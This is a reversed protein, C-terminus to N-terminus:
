LLYFMVNKKKIQESKVKKCHWKIYYRYAVQIIYHINGEKLCAFLGYIRVKPVNFGQLIRVNQYNAKTSFLSNVANKYAVHISGLSVVVFEL